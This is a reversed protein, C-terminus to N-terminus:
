WGQPAVKGNTIVGYICFANQKGAVPGVDDMLPWYGAWENGVGWHVDRPPINKFTVNRSVGTREGYFNICVIESYEIWVEGWQDQYLTRTAGEPIEYLWMIVSDQQYLRLLPKEGTCDEYYESPLCRAWDWARSLMEAETTQKYATEADNETFICSQLGFIAALALLYKM